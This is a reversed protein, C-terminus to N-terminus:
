LKGVHVYCGALNYLTGFAAELKESRAFAACAEAWQGDKALARGRDFEAIAPASTASPQAAAVQASLLLALSRCGIRVSIRRLRLRRRRRRAINALSRPRRRPVRRSQARRRTAHRARGQRTQRRPARG